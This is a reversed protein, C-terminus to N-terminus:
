AARIKHQALKRYLTSRGIQLLKAARPVDGQTHRLAEELCAREYAELSLELDDGPAQARHRSMREDPGGFDAVTLRPGRSLALAAEVANELERVNGEWSRSLLLFSSM